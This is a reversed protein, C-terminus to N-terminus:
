GGHKRAILIGFAINLAGFGAAMWLNGWTAPSFLALAGMGMFCAGMVPVSAVSFAGGTVVGVGYLLLWTGPLASTMGARYLVPTILAGAAIPPSFSLAFKRGPGSTLPLGARRAKYQIAAFAIAVSLVAEVVWVELWAAPSSQRAAIWSAALATVGILAQGWGSAATFCASREMTERIFRLDDLATAHLIPPQTDRRRVRCNRQAPM